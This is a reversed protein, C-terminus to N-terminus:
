SAERALVRRVAAELDGAPDDALDTSRWAIHHDPRVLLAGADGIERLEAWRGLPDTLECGHGITHATLTIGLDEAVAAAAQVWAEGGIGTLLTFGGHGTLDITSVAETGRQLWAHPLRAGPHTTAEYYLEADREPAPWPTGDGAVAASEYQQGLEVGHANFQYNQLEIAEALAARRQESEPGPAFLGDLAQQGEEHSQGPAFGLAQSIPLMDAVSKMARDVVQRGVPQREDHYTALLAESADGRLVAALKWALNFSDQVSTNTGLGNAPPHRHAADGVLFVRGMRYQEAVVHNIQWLSTSKITIDVDPDGITTRARAICAEESLDPEGESPDYMFLLVWETWPKVCIWTGSGVWYDNGPQTMWYLTGPRYATYKTLDAELWINASAGLDTEGLMPFDLQEAVTSRGGDAGILYRARITQENGTDRHRVVATVADDDQQVSVLETSFRLDAGLEVAGHHLVPELVHQPINCMSSPSALEYDSHREPGSGWTLLRAIEPAAFSTAWVNNGMLENPTAAERVADELGLDRFVEMTRQNTIHARPSHATGAYKTVTVANVGYKALAAAMTLGAPGAGVVLVDTQEITDM